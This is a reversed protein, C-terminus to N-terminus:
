FYLRTPLCLCRSLSYGLDCVDGIIMEFGPIVGYRLLNVTCSRGNSSRAHHVIYLFLTMPEPRYDDVHGVISNRPPSHPFANCFYSESVSPFTCEGRNKIIKIKQLRVGDDTQTM